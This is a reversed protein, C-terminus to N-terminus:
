GAELEKLAQTVYNYVNEDGFLKAATRFGKLSRRRKKIFSPDTADIGCEQLTPFPEINKGMYFDVYTKRMAGDEKRFYEKFGDVAYTLPKKPV